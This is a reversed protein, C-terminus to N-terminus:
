LNGGIATIHAYAVILVLIDMWEELLEELLTLM